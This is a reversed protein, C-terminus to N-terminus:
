PAGIRLWCGSAVATGRTLTLGEGVVVNRGALVEAQIVPAPNLLPSPDAGLNEKTQVSFIPSGLWGALVTHETKRHTQLTGVNPWYFDGECGTSDHTPVAPVMGVLREGLFLRALYENAAYAAM